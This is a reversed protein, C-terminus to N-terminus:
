LLIMIMDKYHQILWYKCLNLSVNSKVMSCNVNVSVESSELWKGLRGM